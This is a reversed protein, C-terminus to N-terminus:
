KPLRLLGFRRMTKIAKTQALAELEMQTGALQTSLEEADRLADALQRQLMVIEDQRELAIRQADSLTATKQQVRATLATIEDMRAAALANMESLAAESRLTEAQALDIRQQLATIEDLREFAVRQAETLATNEIHLRATLASIEDLRAFALQKVETLADECRGTAAQATVLAQQTLELQTRLAQADNSVADFRRQLSTLDNLREIALGQAEQLATSEAQVRKTLAAVEDLRAYALTRAENLATECRAVVTKTVALETQTAKLEARRKRTANPSADLEAQLATIEDLREFALRQAEHLADSEAAVRANLAAIEDLRAFALAKVESLAAECRGTAEQAAALEATPLALDLSHARCFSAIVEDYYQPKSLLLSALHDLTEVEPLRIDELRARYIEFRERAILLLGFEKAPGFINEAVHNFNAANYAASVSGFARYDNAQAFELLLAGGELSNCEAFVVPRDRAIVAAAGALVESEMGEVDLKIVDVPPLEMGDLTVVSVTYQAAKDAHPQSLSLGGFNGDHMLDLRDMVLEAPARGLAKNCAQAQALGNAAINQQLYAFIEHRPEFAYVRGAPGVMKAFALTHTGIFAGADLVCAGPAIFQALMDLEAQAWEGYLALSKSVFHDHDIIQMLGYRTTVATM